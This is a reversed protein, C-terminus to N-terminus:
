VYDEDDTEDKDEEDETEKGCKAEKIFNIVEIKANGIFVEKSLLTELPRIDYRTHMRKINIVEIKKNENGFEEIICHIRKELRAQKRSKAKTINAKKQKNKKSTDKPM